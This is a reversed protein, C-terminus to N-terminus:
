LAFTDTGSHLAIVVGEPVHQTSFKRDFSYHNDRKRVFEPTEEIRVTDSGPLILHHKLTVQNNHFRYGKNVIRFSDRVGNVTVSWKNHLDKEYETGWSTPQINKKDTYAAGELLVGGKWVKYLTGNALDYSAYCATDLALTLMRPKRDLVSRFAWPDRPREVKVANESCSIFLCTILFIFICKM